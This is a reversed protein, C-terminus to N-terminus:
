EAFSKKAPTSSTAAEWVVAEDDSARMESDRDIETWIGALNRHMEHGAANLRGPASM